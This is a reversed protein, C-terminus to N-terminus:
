GDITEGSAAPRGKYDDVLSEMMVISVRRNKARTAEDYDQDILPESDGCAEVTIRERRIGAEILYQKVAMARAYSLDDLSKFPKYMDAPKRAAHGSVRIKTNLGRIQKAFEGLEQKAVDLLDAKGSEFSVNGGITFQLGDRVTKVSPNDGEIGQDKSNGAQLKVRQRKLADTLQRVQEEFSLNTPPSGKARWGGGSYGVALQFSKVVQELKKGQRLESMSLMAVMFSMLLSMMDAFSIIWIPAGEQAAEQKLSKKKGHSM